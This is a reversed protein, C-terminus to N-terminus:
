QADIKLFDLMTQKVDQIHENLEPTYNFNIREAIVRRLVQIDINSGCFEHYARLKLQEIVVDVAKIKDPDVLTLRYNHLAALLRDTAKNKPTHSALRDVRYFTDLPSFDFLVKDKCRDKRQNEDYYKFHFYHQALSAFVTLLKAPTDYVDLTHPMGLKGKKGTQKEIVFWRQASSKISFEVRWVDPKILTGDKCRKTMNIPDDILGSEFWAQRIYPKDKVQALELSKNYMKTSVMSKPKGWSLSSWVRGSWQDSGHAALNAQNVKSYVGRMYRHVFKCPDDGKDFQTFDLCIDLRYIKRFTYNYRVLFERLLDICGPRYCSFNPFRLHASEQQFFGGDRGKNSFPERRIELFPEGHIDYLTFMEKYVRTGYDRERVEWGQHRFFEANCPYLHIDELVYVELWDLNVCRTVSAM